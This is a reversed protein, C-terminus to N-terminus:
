VYEDGGKGGIVLEGAEAMRQAVAIIEKQAAKVESLKVPGKNEMDDRLLEAARKSMNSLIKDRVADDAGKLAVVLMDGTVERLLTQIGRDNIDKLNDFVFMLEKIEAGLVEDLEAIRASIAGEERADLMNLIEAVKRSGGIRPPKATGRDSFQRSLIHDLEELAVPSIEEMRAVRILVDSRLDEELTSLVSAALDPDLQTLVISIIQPHEDCVVEAIDEPAMWKLSELGRVNRGELVRNIMGEAREAGLAQQLVKSVYEDKGVNVASQDQVSRLFDGVVGAILESSINGLSSMAVGVKHVERPGMHKLITAAYEEGLSMLLVAARQTGSLEAAQEAM